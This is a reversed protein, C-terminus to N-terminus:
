KLYVIVPVQKRVAVSMKGIAISVPVDERHDAYLAKAKVASTAFKDPLPYSLLKDSQSYFVIRNGDLPCTIDDGNIIIKGQYKVVVPGTGFHFSSNQSLSMDVSDGDRRYSLVDLSHLKFWPVYNEYYIDTIYADSVNKKLWGRHVNNNYLMESIKNPLSSGGPNGYYISNRYAISLFPIDIGANGYRNGGSTGPGDCTAALHGVAPFRLLESVVAIGHNHFFRDFLKYKGETLNSPASAPHLPDFDARISWWTAADILLSGGLAYNTATYDVRAEGPGGPRMYNAMGTIYSIDKGNWARFTALNGNANKAIDAEKFFGATFENKYQDDYNDDFSVTANCLKKGVEQFQFFGDEGGLQPNIKTINPYATDHGGECWGAIFCIQPNNDILNSIRRTLQEMEKFTAEVPHRGVQGMIIWPYKDDFFHSPIPPMFDRVIKAADLWDVIGNGDYDGGFDIRSIDNQNVILDPTKVGGPQYHLSSAGITAHNGSDTATVDLFTRSCFGAVKMTCVSKPKVFAVVPLISLNPYGGFFPEDEGIDGLKASALDVLKGAVNNYIFSSPGDAQRLTVLDKTLIKIFHYGRAENVKELTVFVTGKQLAYDIEFSGADVGKYLLKYKFRTREPGTTVSDLMALCDANTQDALNRVNVNIGTGTDEGWYSDGLKLLDYKYPLGDNGDFTIRLNANEVVIPHLPAVRLPEGTACAEDLHSLSLLALSVAVLGALCQHRM